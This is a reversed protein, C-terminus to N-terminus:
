TVFSMKHGTSEKVSALWARRQKKDKKEQASKKQEAHYDEITQIERKVQDHTKLEFKVHTRFPMNFQSVNGHGAENELKAGSGMMAAKERTRIKLNEIRDLVEQSYMKMPIPVDSTPTAETSLSAKKRYSEGVLSSHTTPASSKPRRLKINANDMKADLPKSKELIATHPRLIKAAPITSVVDQPHISHPTPTTSIHKMQFDTVYTDTTPALEVSTNTPPTRHTPVHSPSTYPERMSTSM